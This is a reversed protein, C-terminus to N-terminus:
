IRCSRQRLAWQRPRRTTWYHPAQCQDETSQGGRSPNPLRASTQIHIKSPWSCNWTRQIQWRVPARHLRHKILLLLLFHVSKRQLGPRLKPLISPRSHQSARGRAKQRKGDPVQVEPTDEVGHSSATNLVVVVIKSAPVGNRRARMPAHRRQSTQIRYEQQGTDSATQVITTNKGAFAGVPAIGPM